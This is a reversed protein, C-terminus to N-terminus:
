AQHTQTASAGDSVRVSPIDLVVRGSEFQIKPKPKQAAITRDFQSVLSAVLNTVEQSRQALAVAKDRMAKVSATDKSYAADLLNEFEAIEAETEPDFWADLDLTEQVATM